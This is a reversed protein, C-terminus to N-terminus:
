DKFIIEPCVAFKYDRLMNMILSRCSFFTKLFTVYIKLVGNLMKCYWDM